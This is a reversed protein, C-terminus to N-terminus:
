SKEKMVQILEDIYQKQADTGYYKAQLSKTVSDLIVPLEEKIARDNKVYDSRINFRKKMSKDIYEQSECQLIMKEHCKKQWVEFKIHMALFQRDQDQMNEYISETQLQLNKCDSELNYVFVNYERISKEVMPVLYKKTAYLVVGAIVFFDLFRFVINVVDMM